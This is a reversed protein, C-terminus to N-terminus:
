ALMQRRGHLGKKDFIHALHKKVTNPSVGLRDAIQRNTLGRRLLDLVETERPTLPEGQDGIANPSSAPDVSRLLTEYLSELVQRPFWLRGAVVADLASALQAEDITSPICGRVQSLIAMDAREDVPADCVLLWDIAPLRRRLAKLLAPGARRVLDIDVLLLRPDHRECHQELEDLSDARVPEIRYARHPDCRSPLLGPGLLATPTRPGHAALVHHVADQPTTNTDPSQRDAEQSGAAAPTRAFWASALPDLVPRATTM